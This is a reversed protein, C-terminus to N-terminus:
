KTASVKSQQAASMPTIVTGSPGLATPYQCKNFFTMFTEGLIVPETAGKGLEIKPAEIIGKGSAKAHVDGNKAEAFINGDNVVITLAKGTEIRGTEKASVFLEKESHALIHESLELETGSNRHFVRWIGDSVVEVTIGHLTMVKSDKAPKAKPENNLRKHTHVDQGGFVEHPLNLIGNPALHVSGTIRPRRMDIENLTIYPFDIWVVDGKKFPTFDGENARASVPLKIEAWPLDNDQVGDFLAVPRVQVRKYKKPDDVSVVTAQMDAGLALRQFLLDSM